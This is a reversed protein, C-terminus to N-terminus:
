PRQYALLIGLQSLGTFPLVFLVNSLYDVGFNSKLGDNTFTQGQNHQIAANLILARIPPLAGSAVRDNIAKAGASVSALTSIDPSLIEHHSPPRSANSM